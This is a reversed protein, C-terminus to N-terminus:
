SAAPITGYKYNTVITAASSATSNDWDLHIKFSPYDSGYITFSRRRTGNQLFPMEFGFPGDDEAEFDTGNIDGLIYVYLGGTAKAHDSYDVDVTINICYKNDMSIEASTDTTTGGQTLTGNFEITWSTDWNIGTDAM